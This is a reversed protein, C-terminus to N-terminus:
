RCQVRCFLEVLEAVPELVENLVTGVAMSTGAYLMYATTAPLRQMAVSGLQDSHGLMFGGFLLAWVHAGEPALAGAMATSVDSAFTAAGGTVLGWCTVCLFQTTVNLIVFASVPLGCLGRLQPWRSWCLLPGLCLLLLGQWRETPVLM